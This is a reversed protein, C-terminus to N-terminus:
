PMEHRSAVRLADAAIGTVPSGDSAHPIENQRKRAPPKAAACSAIHPRTPVHGASTGQWSRFYNKVANRDWADHRLVFSDPGLGDTKRVDSAQDNLLADGHQQM